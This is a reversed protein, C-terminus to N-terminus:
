NSPRSVTVERKGSTTRITVRVSGEPAPRFVRSASWQFWDGGASSAVEDAVAGHTDSVAIDVDEVLASAPDKPPSGRNGGNTWEDYRRQWDADISGVAHGTVGLRLVLRDPWFEASLLIVAAGPAILGAPENIAVALPENSMTRSVASSLADIAAGGYLRARRARTRTIATGAHSAGEPRCRPSIHYEPREVTLTHPPSGDTAHPPTRLERLEASASAIGGIRKGSGVDHGSLPHRRSEFIGFDMAVQAVSADSTWAVRVVGEGVGRRLADILQSRLVPCGATWASCHRDCRVDDLHQFDSRREIAVVDRLAARVITTASILSM